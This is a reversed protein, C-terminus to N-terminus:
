AFVIIDKHYDEEPFNAIFNNGKISYYQYGNDTTVRTITAPTMDHRIRDICEKDQIARDIWEQCLNRYIAIQQIM